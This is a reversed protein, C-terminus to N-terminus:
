KEIGYIEQLSKVDYHSVDIYTACGKMFSNFLKKSSVKMKIDKLSNSFNEALLDEYALFLTDDFNLCSDLHLQYEDPKNWKLYQTYTFADTGTNPSRIGTSKDVDKLADFLDEELKLNITVLESLKEELEKKESEVEEFEYVLVDISSRYEKVKILALQYVIFAPFFAIVILGMAKYKM